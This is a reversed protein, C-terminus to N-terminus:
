NNPSFHVVPIPICRKSLIVDQLNGMSYNKLGRSAVACIKNWIDWLYKPASSITSLYNKGEFYKALTLEAVMMNDFAIVAEEITKGQAAVDYDLGQTTWGLKDKIVLVKTEIYKQEM